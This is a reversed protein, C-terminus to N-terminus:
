PKSAPLRNTAIGNTLTFTVSSVSNVTHFKTSHKKARAPVAPLMMAVVLTVVLASAITIIPKKSMSLLVGCNAM